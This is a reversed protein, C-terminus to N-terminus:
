NVLGPQIEQELSILNFIRFINKTTYQFDKHHAPAGLHTDAAHEPISNHTDSHTYVSANENNLLRRSTVQEKERM